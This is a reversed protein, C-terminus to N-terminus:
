NDWEDSYQKSKKNGEDPTTVETESDDPVSKPTGGPESQPAASAPAASSMQSSTAMALALPQSQQTSSGEEMLRGRNRKPSEDSVEQAM